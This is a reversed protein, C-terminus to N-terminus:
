HVMVINFCLVSVLAQISIDPWLLNILCNLTCNYICAFYETLTFGVYLLILKSKNLCGCMNQALAECSFKIGNKHPVSVILWVKLRLWLYYSWHKFLNSSSHNYRLILTTQERATLFCSGSSRYPLLIWQNMVWQFKSCPIHSLIHCMNHSKTNLECWIKVVWHTAGRNNIVSKVDM